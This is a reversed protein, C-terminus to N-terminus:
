WSSPIIACSFVAWVVCQFRTQIFLVFLQQFYLYGLPGTISTPLVSWNQGQDHVTIIHTQAHQRRGGIQNERQPFHLYRRAPWEGKIGGTNDHCKICGATVRSPKIEGLAFWSEQLAFTTSRSQFVRGCLAPVLLGWFALVETGNWTVILVSEKTSVLTSGKLNCCM